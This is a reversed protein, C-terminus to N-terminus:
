VARRAARRGRIMRLPSPLRGLAQQVRAKVKPIQLVDDLRRDLFDFTDAFGESQDSLWYMLTSTYVPALLGRKTYHNFDAARDGAAFWIQDCTRWTIRAARAAHQPMALYSMLRRLAERHPAFIELRVRVGAAVRDRVRMSPLDMEGLAALMRRDAWDAFHDAADIPGGPFARLVQEPGMGLDRAGNELAKRTWGDFPVHVLTADILRDRLDRHRAQAEEATMRPRRGKTGTTEKTGTTTTM